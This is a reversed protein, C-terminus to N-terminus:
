DPILKKETASARIAVLLDTRGELAMLNNFGLRSTFNGKADYFLKCRLVSPRRGRVALGGRDQRRTSRCPEFEAGNVGCHKAPQKVPGTTGAILSPPKCHSVTRGRSSTEKM